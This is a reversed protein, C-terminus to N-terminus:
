DPQMNSVAEDGSTGWQVRLAQNRDYGVGSKLVYWYGNSPRWVAMDVKGDGDYDAPMV